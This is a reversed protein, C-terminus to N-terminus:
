FRLIILGLTVFLKRIQSLFNQSDWSQAVFFKYTEVDECEIASYLNEKLSFLSHLSLENM